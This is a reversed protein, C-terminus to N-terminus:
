RLRWTGSQPGLGADVAFRLRRAREGTAVVFPVCGRAMRGPGLEVSAAFAGGCTRGRYDASAQGAPRGRTTVLTAAAAPSDTYLTMGVNRLRLVVGVFREGAGPRDASATPLPDIVALVTAQLTADETGRLLLPSGMAALKAPGEGAPVTEFRGPTGGSNEKPGCGLVLATALGAAAASRGRM